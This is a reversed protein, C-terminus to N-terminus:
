IKMKYDRPITKQRGMQLKIKLIPFTYKGRISENMTDPVCPVPCVIMKSSHNSPPFGSVAMCHHSLPPFAFNEVFKFDAQLYNTTLQLVKLGLGVGLFTKSILGMFHVACKRKEKRRKKFDICQM